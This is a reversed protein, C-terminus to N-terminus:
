ASANSLISIMYVEFFVHDMTLEENKIKQMIRVKPVKNNNNKEVRSTMFVTIPVVKELM